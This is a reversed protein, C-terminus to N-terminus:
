IVDWEQIRFDAFPYRGRFKRIHEYASRKNRCIESISEFGASDTKIVVFVSIPLDADDEDDDEDNVLM